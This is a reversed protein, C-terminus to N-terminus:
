PGSRHAPHVIGTHEAHLSCVCGTRTRLAHWAGRKLSYFTLGADVALGANAADQAWLGLVSRMHSGTASCAEWGTRTAKLAAFLPGRLAFDGGAAACARVFSRLARLVCLEPVPDASVEYAQGARCKVARPALM